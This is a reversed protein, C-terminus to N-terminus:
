ARVISWGGGVVVSSRLFEWQLPLKQVSLSSGGVVVKVVLLAFAVRCSLKMHEFERAAGKTSASGAGTCLADQNIRILHSAPSQSICGVVSDFTVIQGGYMTVNTKVCPCQAGCFGKPVDSTILSIGLRIPVSTVHYLWTFLGGHM